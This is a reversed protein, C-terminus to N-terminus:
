ATAAVRLKPWLAAFVVVGVVALIIALTNANIDAIRGSLILFAPLFGTVFGQVAAVGGTYRGLGDRKRALLIYFLLWLFSWYLWIVGFVPDGTNFSLFSYIVAAIAVYLSFMGLGTGDLNWMLNCAVYLYTFGFLYLGSAGLIQTMDGDANIILYTPTIVQLIGVFINLPAASKSDIWGLLMTGNLFLVAGVYILGVAGM